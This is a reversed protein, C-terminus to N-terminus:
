RGRHSEYRFGRGGLDVQSGTALVIPVQPVLPQDAQQGPLLVRTGNASGLDTVLVRWGELHVRAHVRSVIGTEDSIRLPRATGEAVSADLSPERGVVYDADLQFVSGDDLLLVGLPPREGPRPVLTQQNMSIGCIACFLAEPDDFHGNKCYVGQILPGASVYGSSGPPIDRVKALPERVPVDAAGGLGADLLVVAEFPQAPAPPEFAEAQYAEPPATVEGELDEATRPEAGWLQTAQQEQVAHPDAAAGGGAEPVEMASTRAASIDPVPMQGGSYYSLGGARVTGADLRSFRDTAAVGNDAPGLGGRVASVASRVSGRLLVSPHGSEIRATGSATTVDAWATGSVTVALGSGSRGFALVSPWAAAVELADAVADTFARGDGGAGAVQELLDLLDDAAQSDELGCLLILDARRALVGEGPVPFLGPAPGHGGEHGSGGQESV